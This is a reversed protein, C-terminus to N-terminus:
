LSSFGIADANIETYSKLEGQKNTFDRSLIRGRVFVSMGKKLVNAWHEAEKEWMVINHWRPKDEGHIEEALAFTCFPTDKKTHRLVPNKGLRGYITKEQHNMFLRRTSTLGL